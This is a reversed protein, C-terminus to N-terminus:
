QKKIQQTKIQQMKDAWLLLALVFIFIVSGSILQESINGTKDWRVFNYWCNLGMAAIFLIMMRFPYTNSRNETRRAVFVAVFIAIAVATVSNMMLLVPEHKEIGFLIPGAGCSALFLGGFFLTKAPYIERATRHFYELDIIRLVFSALAVAGCYVIVFLYVSNVINTWNWGDKMKYNVANLFCGFFAIRMFVNLLERRSRMLSSVTQQYGFKSIHDMISCVIMAGLINPVLNVFLKAPLRESVDIEKVAIGCVAPLAALFLFFLYRKYKKIAFIRGVAKELDMYNCIEVLIDILATGVVYIVTILVDQTIVGCLVSFFANLLIFFVKWRVPEDKWIKTFLEDM